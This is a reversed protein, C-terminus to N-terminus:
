DVLRGLDTYGQSVFKQMPLFKGYLRGHHFPFLFLYLYLREKVEARSPPPYNFGRRPRKVGPLIETGSEKQVM